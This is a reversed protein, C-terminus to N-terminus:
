IKGLETWGAPHMPCLTRQRSLFRLPSNDDPGAALAGWRLASHIAACSRSRSFVGYKRRESWRRDMSGGRPGRRDGRCEAGGADAPDGAGPGRRRASQSLGRLGAREEDNATLKSKGPM